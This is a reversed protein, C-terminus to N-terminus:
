FHYKQSERLHWLVANDHNYWNVYFINFCMVFLEFFCEIPRWLCILLTLLSTGHSKAIKKFERLHMSSKLNQSARLKVNGVWRPFVLPRTNMQAQLEVKVESVTTVCILWSKINWTGWVQHMTACTIDNPSHSLMITLDSSPESRSQLTM